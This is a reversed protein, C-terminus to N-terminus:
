GRDLGKGQLADHFSCDGLSAISLDDADAWGAVPSSLKYWGTGNASTSGASTLVFEEAHVTNGDDVTGAAGSSTSHGAYVTLGSGGACVLMDAPLSVAQYLAQQTSFWRGWTQGDAELGLVMLAGGGDPSGVNFAAVGNAPTSATSSWNLCNKGGPNNSSCDAVPVANFVQLAADYAAARTNATPGTATPSPTASPSPSPSPSPSAAPSKSPSPSPSAKPTATAGNSSPQTALPSLPEFTVNAQPPAAKGGCAVVFVACSALAAVWLRGPMWRTSRTEHM